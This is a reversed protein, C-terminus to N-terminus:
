LSIHYIATYKITFIKGKKMKNSQFFSLYYYYKFMIGPCYIVMPLYWKEEDVACSCCCWVMHLLLYATGLNGM